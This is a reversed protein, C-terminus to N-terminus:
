WNHLAKCLRQALANVLYKRIVRGDYVPLHQRFLGDPLEYSERFDPVERWVADILQMPSLTHDDWVLKNVKRGAEDYKIFHIVPASGLQARHESRGVCLIGLNTLYPGIAFYYHDLLGEDSKEKVSTKVRDSARM